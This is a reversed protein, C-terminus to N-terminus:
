SKNLLAKLICFDIPIKSFILRKIESFVAILPPEETHFDPWTNESPYFHISFLKPFTLIDIKLFDMNGFFIEQPFMNHTIDFTLTLPWPWELFPSIWFNFRKNPIKPSKIAANKLNPIFSSGIPVCTRFQYLHGQGQDLDYFDLDFMRFISWFGLCVNNWNKMNLWIDVINSLKPNNCVGIGYGILFM